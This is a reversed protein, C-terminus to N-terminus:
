ILAMQQVNIPYCDNPGGLFARQALIVNAAQTPHYADWFIYQNRNPCPTSFPLCTIQGQNRGVGCCGRDSVNFGYATPNNLIDGVVGYTNGYVFISGPHNGNLQDVLSRLGVNYPGVIQNVYDVCRGPPAQGTALQNPICGLPGVGALFFKRLGVSYLALLQRTYHNLLLNAYDQPSYQQSSSYLSPLLYNNIYDNSGFVLVAISKALFQNLNRQGMQNRLDNLNNEFNLVQQNLNFRDGYHQGTEDLIGGAASAYNVGGLIKTGNSSPDAFAPPYPLGLMECLLDSITRANSFRGTPGQYFDIGYPFYNSKVLSNLYNNNGVDVVSDGFVFMAPVQTSRVVMISCQFFLFIVVLWGSFRAPGALGYSTKEM